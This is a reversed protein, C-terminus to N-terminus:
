MKWQKNINPFQNPVLSMVYANVEMLVSNRGPSPTQTDLLLYEDYASSHVIGLDFLFAFWVFCLGKPQFLRKVLLEQLRVLVAVHVIPSQGVAFKMIPSLNDMAKVITDLEEPSMELYSPVASESVIDCTAGFIPDIVARVIRDSSLLASSLGISSIVFPLATGDMRGSLVECVYCRIALYPLITRLDTALLVKLLTGSDRFCRYLFGDTFLASLIRHVESDPL